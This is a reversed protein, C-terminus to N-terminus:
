NFKMQLLLRKMKSIAKTIAVMESESPGEWSARLEGNFESYEVPNSQSFHLLFLRTEVDSKLSIFTKKPDTITEM